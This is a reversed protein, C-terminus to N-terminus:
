DYFLDSSQEPKYLTIEPCICGLNDVLDNIAVEKIIMEIRSRWVVAEDMYTGQEKLRGRRFDM